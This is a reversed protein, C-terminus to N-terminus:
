NLFRKCEWVIFRILKATMVQEDFARELLNKHPIPLETNEPVCVGDLVRALMTYVEKQDNSLQNFYGTESSTVVGQDELTLGCLYNKDTSVHAVRKLEVPEMYNLEDSNFHKEWLSFWAVMNELDDKLADIDAFTNGLGCCFLTAQYEDDIFRFGTVTENDSIPGTRFTNLCWQTIAPIKQGRYLQYFGQRLSFDTALFVSLVFTILAIPPEISEDKFTNLLYRCHENKLFRQRLRHASPYNIIESETEVSDRSDIQRLDPDFPDFDIDRIKFRFYMMM